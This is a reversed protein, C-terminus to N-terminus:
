TLICSVVFGYDRYGLLRLGPLQWLAVEFGRNREPCYHFPKSLQSPRQSFIALKAARIRRCCSMTKQAAPLCVDILIM